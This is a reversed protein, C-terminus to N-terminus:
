KSVRGAAALLGVAALLLLGGCVAAGAAPGWASRVVVFLAGVLLVAGCLGLGAAVAILGLSVGTRRVMTRLLRGEAELLDAIRV